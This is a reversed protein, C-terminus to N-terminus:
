FNIKVDGGVPYAQCTLILGKEVEDDMLVENYAMWVKGSTCLAACSGCRGAECSYPLTIGNAKAAALITSPYQVAIKFSQNNVQIVATHKGTDPPVPKTIRPLTSFQEKFINNSPVGYTRLTIQIMLMYDFPGCMFYLDQTGAKYNDLLNNLLYNSLRAQRFHHHDSYFWVIHFRGEFQQQLAMLQAFFIVEKKSSNSYVLVVTVDKWMQLGARILAYVPTIGSGAAFFFLQKTEQPLVPPLTFFGNVGTTLFEDGVLVHDLMYRSYEGNAVRKITICMQDEGPVATISFSRRKEIGTNTFILTIFQGPKYVPKWNNLPQLVFTKASPTEAIIGAIKVKHLITTDM